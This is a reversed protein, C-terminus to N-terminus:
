MNEEFFICTKKIVEKQENRFCHDAGAIIDIKKPGNIREYWKESQAHPVDSDSEGHLFLCPSIIFDLKSYVNISPIESIFQEWVKFGDNIIYGQSELLKKWEVSLFEDPFSCNMFDFAPYWFTVCDISTDYWETVITGWMSEGVVGIRKYWLLKVYSLVEKFDKTESWVTMDIFEGDSPPTWRFSFRLVAYGNDQLEQSLKQFLLNPGNLDGTFGHVLIIIKGAEYNEIVWRIHKWEVEISFNKNM